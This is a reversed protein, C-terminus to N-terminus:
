KNNTVKLNDFFVEFPADAYLGPSGQRNPIPDIREILWKYPEAEDRPSAKGRIRVQGIPLNEVTLKMRYWTDAKWAFPIAMTRATEPQWTQLELRQNNGFLVLEYRQAVIGADGMQRRKETARIDAEVTYNSWNGPGIFIRARKTFPNDALKVLVKNGDIDRVAFKGTANVWHSPVTNVAM